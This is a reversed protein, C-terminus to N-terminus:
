TYPDYSNHSFIHYKIIILMIPVVFLDLLHGAIEPNSKMTPLLSITRLVNKLSSIAVVYEWTLM